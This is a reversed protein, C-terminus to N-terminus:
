HLLIQLLHLYVPFVSLLSVTCQQFSKQCSLTDCIDASLKLKGRCKRDSNIHRNVRLSLPTRSEFVQWHDKLVLACSQLPSVTFFVSYQCNVSGSILQCTDSCTRILVTQCLWTTSTHLDNSPYNLHKLILFYDILTTVKSKFWSCYSNYYSYSIHFATEQRTTHAKDTIHDPCLVM